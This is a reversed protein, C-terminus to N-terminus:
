ETIPKKNTIRNKLEELQRYLDLIVKDEDTLPAESATTPELRAVYVSGDTLEIFIANMIINKTTKILCMLVHKLLRYTANFRMKDQHQVCASIITKLELGVMIKVM